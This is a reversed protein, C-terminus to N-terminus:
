HAPFDLRILVNGLFSYRLHVTLSADFPRLLGTMRADIFHGFKVDGARARVESRRHRLRFVDRWAPFGGRM